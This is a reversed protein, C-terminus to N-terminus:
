QADIRHLATLRAAPKMGALAKLQEKKVSGASTNGAAGSGGATTRIISDKQAYGNIILEIAEEPLAYKGPNALSLIQDGKDDRAIVTLKGAEEEIEFHKGFQAYAIEPPLVTQDKIFVSSDFAGKILLIRIATDKRGLDQELAEVKKSHATDIDRIKVKYSADFGEKVKEIEINREKDLQGLNAVTSIANRAEEPDLDGFSKLKATIDEPNLDGFAAVKTKYKDREERFGKSEAQYVPVKSHLDIADLGFEKDNADDVVLPHGDADIQIGSGDEMLKYALAM